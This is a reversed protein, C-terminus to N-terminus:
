ISEELSQSYTKSHSFSSIANASVSELLLRNRLCELSSENDNFHIANKQNVTYNPIEGVPTVLCVLGNQMAEVTSMSMGESESLQVFINYKELVRPLEDHALEGKFFISEELENKATITKLNQLDGDDVGYISFSCEIKNEKLFKILEIAKDIRKVKNIRGFFVFRLEDFSKKSIDFQQNIMLSIKTSKKDSFQKVFKAAAESDVFIRDAIRASIVKFFKDLLSFFKSSHFFVIHTVNPMSIKFICLLFYSKWLSYLFVSPPYKKIINLFNKIDSFFNWSKYNLNIIKQKQNKSLDSIFNESVSGFVVVFIKKDKAFNKLSSKAAIEVGGTKFDSIFHFINMDLNEKLHM